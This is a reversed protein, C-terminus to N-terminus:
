NKVNDLTYAAAIKDDFKGLEILLMDILPTAWEDVLLLKKDFEVPMEKGDFSMLASALCYVSHLNNYRKQTQAADAELKGDIMKAQKASRTRFVCKHGRPLLVEEEYYGKTFISDLIAVVENPNVKKGDVVKESEKKAVDEPNPKEPM